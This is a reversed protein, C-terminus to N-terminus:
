SKDLAAGFEVLLKQAYQVSGCGKRMAAAGEHGLKERLAPDALRRLALALDEPNNEEYTMRGPIKNSNQVRSSVLVPLGCSAADLNSNTEQCPWVGVDAARFLTPLTKYPVFPMVHCGDMASIENAQNGSGVFLAHFPLEERRLIGVAQALCLPNKEPTLRGTYICVIASGEYGLAARFQIREAIEASAALPTFRRTDLPLQLHEVKDSSVLFFKRAIEAADRTVAFCKKLNLSCLWGMLSDTLRLRMRSALSWSDYDYYAPYVTAVTHASAFVKFSSFSSVLSLLVAQYSRPDYTYVIDPNLSRIVKVRKSVVKLRKWWLVIPLRIVTVGDVETRGPTVIRPGLFKGYVEDYFEHDGYAQMTSTVLYIEHGMSALTSPIVNEHYGMQESFVDSSFVIRMAFSGRQM